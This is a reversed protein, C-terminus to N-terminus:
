MARSAAAFVVQVGINDKARFIGSFYQRHGYFVILWRILVIAILIRTPNLFVHYLVVTLSATWNSASSTKVRMLAFFKFQNGLHGIRPWFYSCATYVITLSPFSGSFGLNRKTAAVKSFAIVVNKGLTRKAIRLDPTRDGEAGGILDLV